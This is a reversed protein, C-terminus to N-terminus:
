NKVFRILRDQNEVRLLLVYMGQTLDKLNFDILYRDLQQASYEVKVVGLPFQVVRLLVDAPRALQIQVQFRGNNPNPSLVFNEILEEYGLRGGNNSKDKESIMISKERYDRCEALFSKMGLYFVGPETPKAFLIEPASSVLTQFSVPYNWEVREPLPWSIDIAVITDGVIAEAPMLFEAKLLDFSTELKFTDMAICGQADAGSFYYFGPDKISIKRTNSTFGNNSTWRSKVWQDGADLIKTQGVCLTAKSGLDIPLPDAQAITFQGVIKCQHADVVSVRYDGPCLNSLSSLTSNNDWDFSYPASGGSVTLDIGGDCRGLCTPPSIVSALGLAKPGLLTVKESLKCGHLDTITIDYSDACLNTILSSTLGKTPWEYQYPETGGTATARITGNCDGNCLPIKTEYNSALPQPSAVNVEKITKCGLGDTVTVFYKGSALGFAFPTTQGDSWNYSYPAFGANITISASGDKYGFCSVNTINNVTFEAGGISSIAVRDKITCSKSDVVEVRYIGSSVKQLIQGAGIEQNTNDDFWKYVYGGNGGASQAEASGVPDNCFASVVNRFSLSLAEPQDISVQTVSQCGNGDKVYFNKTGFSLADFVTQLNWKSADAPNMSYEYPTIGGQSTLGVSGDALGNCSVHNNVIASISLINPQNLTIQATAKCNNIDSVTATYTGAALAVNTAATTANSWSYSYSGTGGTAVAKAAGDSKNYCSIDYGNFNNVHSVTLQLESPNLIDISKAQKCLNADTVTVSYSGPSIGIENQTTKGDSWKYLYPTIGKAVTLNIEGDSANHCSVDVGNYNKKSLSLIMAEPESISLTESASCGYGDKITVTYTGQRLNKAQSTALSVDHSWGFLYVGGNSPGYGNVPSAEMIGDSSGACSIQTGNYNSTVKLKPQIAPPSSINIMGSNTCGNGDRVTVSYSGAKLGSKSQNTTGDFWTYSYIGVGNTVSKVRGDGENSTSCKTNYGNYNSTVETVVSIGPHQSLTMAATANCGKNDVISVSYNAATLQTADLLNSPTFGTGNKKWSVSQLPLAHNSLALSIEGDNQACTMDFGGYSAKSPTATFISTPESITAFLFDPVICGKVDYSAARYVGAYLGSVDKNISFYSSPGSWSSSYGGNGGSVSMSLAGTNQGRCLVDTKSILTQNLAAPEGVSMVQSNNSYCTTSGSAHRAKFIYNSKALGTFVPTLTSPSNPTIPSFNSGGDISYEYSYPAVGNQLNLTITGDNKPGTDSSNCSVNTSSYSSLIKFPSPEGVTVVNTYTISCSGYISTSTNNTITFTWNGPRIGPIPGIVNSSNVEISNSTTAFQVDLGVSSEHRAQILYNNIVAAAPSINLFIKGDNGGNCSVPSSSFTATPAPVLVSFSSSVSSYTCSTNRGVRAYHLGYASISAITSFPITISSTSTSGVSIWTVLDRSIQWNYIDSVTPSSLTVSQNSCSGAGPAAIVHAVPTYKVTIALGSQGSPPTPNVSFYYSSCDTNDPISISISRSAGISVGNLPPANCLGSATMSLTGSIGRAGTFSFNALNFQSSSPTATNSFTTASGNITGNFSYTASNIDEAFCDSTQLDIEVDIQWNQAVSITSLTVFIGVLGVQIFNRM